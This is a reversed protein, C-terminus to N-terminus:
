AANIKEWLGDRFDEPHKQQIWEGVALLRRECKQLRVIEDAIWGQSTDRLRQLELETISEHM